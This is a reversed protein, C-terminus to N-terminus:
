SRSKNAAIRCLLEHTVEERGIKRAAQVVRDFYKADIADRSAMVAANNATVGVAHGFDKTSGFLGIIEKFSNM